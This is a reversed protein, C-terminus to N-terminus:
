MLSPDIVLGSQELAQRLRSNKAELSSITSDKAANLDRIEKELQKSREIGAAREEALSRLLQAKTALFGQQIPEYAVSFQQMYCHIISLAAKHAEDSREGQHLNFENQLGPSSQYVLNPNWMTLSSYIGLRHAASEM